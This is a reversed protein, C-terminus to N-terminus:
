NNQKIIRCPNGFATVNDPIDKVVVSGAGIMCNKGIKIGQKIVSGAGIWTGEGIVSGGCITAGSAVHVFDNIIVDHGVSSKTNLICHRGIKASSQVIAGHAIVTGEGIPVNKCVIASPHIATLYSNATIRDAIRKRISCNGITIIVKDYASQPKSLPIDMFSIETPSDDVVREVKLDNSDLIDLVVKCHGGAGYLTIGDIM